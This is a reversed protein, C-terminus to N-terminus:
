HAPGTKTGDPEHALSAYVQGLLNQPTILEDDLEPNNLGRARWGREEHQVLRHAVRRGESNLYVVTMGERLENFAVPRIVLITGDGYVPAMSDGAGVLVDRGPELGALLEADHWVERRSVHTSPAATQPRSVPEACGPLWWLMASIGAVALRRSVVFPDYSIGRVTL